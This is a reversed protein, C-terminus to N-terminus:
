LLPYELLKRAAILGIRTADIELTNMRHGIDVGHTKDLLFPRVGIAEPLANHSAPLCQHLANDRHGAM